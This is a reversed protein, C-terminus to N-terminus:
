DFILLVSTVGGTHRPVAYPQNDGGYQRPSNATRLVRACCGTRRPARESYLSLPFIAHVIEIFVVDVGIKGGYARVGDHLVNFAQFHERELADANVDAGRGGM